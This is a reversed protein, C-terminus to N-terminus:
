FYIFFLVLNATETLIFNRCVMRFPSLLGHGFLNYLKVLFNDLALDFFQDTAAYFLRQILQQLLFGLLQCLGGAVFAAFSALAVAAAM